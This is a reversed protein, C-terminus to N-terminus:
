GTRYFNRYFDTRPQTLTTKSGPKSKPSRGSKLDLWGNRGM